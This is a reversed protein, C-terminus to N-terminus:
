KRREQVEVDAVANRFVIRVVRTRSPVDRTRVRVDGGRAVVRVRDGPRKPRRRIWVLTGVLGALLAVVLPIGLPSSGAAPAAIRPRPKPSGTVPNIRAGQGPAASSPDAADSSDATEPKPPLVTFTVVGNSDPSSFKGDHTQGDTWEFRYAAAVRISVQGPEADQPISLVVYGDAGDRICNETSTELLQASCSYVVWNGYASGSDIASFSIRVSDGPRGSDPIAHVSGSM